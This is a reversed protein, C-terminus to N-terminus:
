PLSRGYHTLKASVTNLLATSTADSLKPGDFVALPSSEVMDGLTLLTVAM